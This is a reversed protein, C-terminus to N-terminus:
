LSKIEEKGEKKLSSNEWMIKLHGVELVNRKTKKLSSVELFSSLKRCIKETIVQRVFYPTGAGMQSGWLESLQPEPLKWAKGWSWRQSLLMKGLLFATGPVKHTSLEKPQCISYLHFLRGIVAMYEISNLEIVMVLSVLRNCLSAKEWGPARSAWRRM